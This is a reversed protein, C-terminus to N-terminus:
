AKSMIVNHKYNPGLSTYTNTDKYQVLDTTKMFNLNGQWNFTMEWRGLGDEDTCYLAAGHFDSGDFSIRLNHDVVLMSIHENGKYRWPTVWTFKHKVGGVPCDRFIIQDNACAASM